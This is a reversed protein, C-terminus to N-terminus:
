SVRELVLTISHQGSCESFEVQQAKKLQNVINYLDRLKNPQPKSDQILSNERRITAIVKKEANPPHTSLLLVVAWPKCNYLPQSEVAEYQGAIMTHSTGYCLEQVAATVALLGPADNQIISFTPGKLGYRVAAETGPISPLTRAYLRGVPRSELTNAFKTDIELSGTTSGLIIGTNKPNSPSPLLSVAGLVYRSALDLRGFTLFNDFFLKGSPHPGSCEDTWRRTGESTGLYTSDVFATGLLYVPTNHTM